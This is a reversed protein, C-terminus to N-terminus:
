KEKPPYVTVKGNSQIKITGGLQRIKNLALLRTKPFQNASFVLFWAGIRAKKSYPHNSIFNATKRNTTALDHNGAIDAWDAAMNYSYKAGKIDNTFLIQDTARYLWVYNADTQNPSIYKLGKGLLEISRNPLGADISIASSLNLYAQVFRPDYKIIEELFQPSLQYGTSKRAPDDGYYQIFHLFIWDSLFNGYGFSPFSKWFRLYKQQNLNDQEFNSKSFDGHELQKWRPQQLFGVILMCALLVTFPALHNVFSGSKKM